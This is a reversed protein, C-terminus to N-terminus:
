WWTARWARRRHEHPRGAAAGGWGTNSRAGPGFAVFLRVRAGARRGERGRPPILGGPSVLRGRGRVGSQNANGWPRRARVKLPTTGGQPGGALAQLGKGVKGAKRRRERPCRTLSTRSTGGEPTEC